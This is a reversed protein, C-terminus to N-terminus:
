LLGLILCVVIPITINDYDGSYLEAIGSLLAALVISGFHITASFPRSIIYMTMIASLVFAIFGEISKKGKCVKHKGFIKGCFAACTDSVALVDIGLLGPLSFVPDYLSLVGVILMGTFYLPASKMNSNGNGRHTMNLMGMKETLISLIIGLIPVLVIHITNRFSWYILSYLVLGILVHGTKRGIEDAYKCKSCLKKALAAESIIRFACFIIAGYKAIVFMTDM